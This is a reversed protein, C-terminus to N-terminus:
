LTSRYQERNNYNLLRDVELSKEDDENYYRRPQSVDYTNEDNYNNREVESNMNYTDPHILPQNRIDYTNRVAAANNKHCSRTNLPRPQLAIDYNNFNHGDRVRNEFVANHSTGYRQMNQNYDNNNFPRIQLAKQNNYANVSNIVRNNPFANQPVFHQMNQNYNRNYDYPRAYPNNNNNRINKSFSAYDSSASERYDHNYNRNNVPRIQLATNSNYINRQSNPTPNQYKKYNQNNLRNTNIIKPANARTLKKHINAVKDRIIQRRKNGTGIKEVADQLKSVLKLVNDRSRKNDYKKISINRYQPVRQKRKKNYGLPQNRRVPVLNDPLNEEVSNAIKTEIFDKDKTLGEMNVHDEKAVGHSKSIIGLDLVDKSINGYHRYKPKDRYPRDEIDFIPLVVTDPVYKCHQKCVTEYCLLDSDEAFDPPCGSEKSYGEETPKETLYLQDYLHLRQSYNCVLFVSNYISKKDPTYVYEAFASVGCGMYRINGFFLQLYANNDIIHQDTINAIIEPTIVKLMSSFQTRLIYYIAYLVRGHTFGPETFKINIKKTSIVDWRDDYTFRYVGGIQGPDPFRRSAHCRDKAMICQNAWVQAFIALEDEWEVRYIGYGRPLIKGNKDHLVGKATRSRIENIIELIRESFEPMMTINQVGHCMPGHQNDADYYMCMVHTGESCVGIRPCYLKAIDTYGNKVFRDIVKVTNTNYCKITIILDIILLIKVLIM